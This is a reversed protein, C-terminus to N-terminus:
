NIKNRKDAKKPVGGGDVASMMYGIPFGGVDSHSLDLHQMFFRIFNIQKDVWCFSNGARQNM